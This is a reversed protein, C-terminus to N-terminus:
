RIIVLSGLPDAEIRCYSSGVRQSEYENAIWNASRTVSSIRCEDLLGDWNRDPNSDDKAEGGIRFPKNNLDLPANTSVDDVTGNIILALNTSECTMAVHYWTGAAGTINGGVRENGYYASITGNVFQGHSKNFLLGVGRQHSEGFDCMYAIDDPANAAAVDSKAWISVTCNSSVVSELAASHPINIHEGNGGSFRDAGDIQGDVDQNEVVEATSDRRRWTSDAHSGSTESLHWVSAYGESWVDIPYFDLYSQGTRGWYMSISDDVDDILSVKVWALSEGGPNWLEFEHSLINGDSDAFQVDYGNADALGYWGILPTSADLRVLVPFNTLPTSGTYGQFTITAMHAYDDPDITFDFAPLIKISCIKPAAGGSPAMTLRGDTVTVEVNLFNDFRNSGPTPDALVVSELEISNDQNHLPDGCLLDVYYIGNPLAIEWTKPIPGEDFAHVLTDFRQDYHSNRDRDRNTIDDDWGYLLGNGRDGFVEGADV